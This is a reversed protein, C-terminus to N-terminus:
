TFAPVSLHAYSSKEVPPAISTGLNKPLGFASFLSRSREYYYLRGDPTTNSEMTVLTDGKVEVVLVVHDSVGCNGYGGYRWDIVGISGPQATQDYGGSRLQNCLLPSYQIGDPYDVGFRLGAKTLIYAVSIGCHHVYTTGFRDNGSAADYPPKRQIPVFGSSDRYVEGSARTEEAVRLIDAVTTM